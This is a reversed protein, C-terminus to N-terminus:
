KKPFLFTVQVRGGWDQPGGDPSDAWYRAGVGLQMIQPGIKLMQNVTFNVPVSWAENEWDYTSGSDLSITTMTKTIYSLFPQVFTASVDPRDDEGAFSEIHNMLGGFSWKGKQTLAVATLGIGWKEGGLMEDSATPLLLAPGVGSIIGGATPVQPSFFFSQLTDGLGSEGAGKTPVDQQDIVALITRSILNWDENLAFPVVPQFQISWASGEENPGINEDFNAQIPVSILSAVPNALKKAMEASDQGFASMAALAAVTMSTLVHKM